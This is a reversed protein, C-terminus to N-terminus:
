KTSPLGLKLNNVRRQMRKLSSTITTVKNIMYQTRPMSVSARFGSELGCCGKSAFM